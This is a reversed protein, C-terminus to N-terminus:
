KWIICVGHCNIAPEGREPELETERTSEPYQTPLSAAVLEEHEVLFSTIVTVTYKPFFTRLKTM